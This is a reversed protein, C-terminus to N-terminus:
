NWEVNQEAGTIWEKVIKVNNNDYDFDEGLPYDNFGPYWKWELIYKATDFPFNIGLDNQSYYTQGEWEVVRHLVTRIRCCYGETMKSCLHKANLRAELKKLNNLFAEREEKTDFWYDGPQVCHKNLHEENFFGGWVFLHYEYKM